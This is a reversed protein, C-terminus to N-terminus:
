CRPSPPASGAPSTTSRSPSSRRPTEGAAALIEEVDLPSITHMDVVRAHIGDAPSGSPRRAPAAAGRLRHHHDDPRTARACASRGARDRLGGPGRRLGGPRARPGAPHVDRGPRDLSARLIARLQNADAACVVTLDAIARMMAIDELAHHSTGYFGLCMGSHHGLLRVPM